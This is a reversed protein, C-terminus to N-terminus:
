TPWAWMKPQLETWSTLSQPVDQITTLHDRSVFGDPHVRGDKETWAATVTWSEGSRRLSSLTRLSWKIQVRIRRLHMSSPLVVDRAWEETILDTIFYRPTKGAGCRRRTDLLQLHCGCSFGFMQYSFGVAQLVHYTILSFFALPTHPFEGHRKFLYHRLLGICVASESM